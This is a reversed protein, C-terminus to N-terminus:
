EGIRLDGGGSWCLSGNRNVYPRAKVRVAQGTQIADLVSADFNPGMFVRYADRETAIMIAYSKSGDKNQYENSGIFIGAVYVGM